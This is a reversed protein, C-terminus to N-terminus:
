RVFVQAYKVKYTSDYSQSFSSYPVVYGNSNCPYVGTKTCATPLIRSSRLLSLDHQAWAWTSQAYPTNGLGGVWCCTAAVLGVVVTEAYGPFCDNNVDHPRLSFVITKTQAATLGTAFDAGSRIWKYSCKSPWNTKIYTAFSQSGLLKTFGFTYDGTEVMLDSGPVQSWATSKYNDSKAKALTGFTASGTFASTSNWRRTVGNVLSGILTWGGGHKSMECFVTEAAGGPKIVYEGSALKPLGKHLEACDKPLRCVSADCIGKDCDTSSKCAKGAACAKCASGGCDVDTEDGNKIKDTCKTCGSIDLACKTTCALTGGDFGQTKCTKGGLKAGDCQESGNIVADGCRHCGTVDFACTTCALAGGYYGQTQCTKGGLVVGDCQEGADIIGNGCSPACKGSACAEGLKCLVGCAGCNLLNTQLNVCANNCDTLGSQCWLACKGASCVQGLACSNGCAGCNYLDTQLNVCTGGCETLKSQCSLVCKAATCVQGATCQTKCAGCNNNDTQLNVCTGGCETLKSQCSLVCKAATCVQGATCQTKCAGCNNNDTQLNACTGGCDTLGNQCSLVCIGSTCAQGAPCKTKCAGCNNNDTQLNVCSDDCDTLGSQCSLDCKGASCVQGAKCASACAGCNKHDTQLNACYPAGADAGGCRTQSTPCSLVCKGASCVQGVKCADGCAGCNKADNDLDVCLGACRTTGSACAQIDPPTQGDLVAAPMDPSGSADIIEGVKEDCGSAVLAVLVPLATLLRFFRPDLTSSRM